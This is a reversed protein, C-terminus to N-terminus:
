ATADVKIEIYDDLNFSYIYTLVDLKPYISDLAKKYAQLQETYRLRLTEEDTADTKYDVIVVRDDFVAYFDIIGQISQGNELYLVPMENEIENAKYLSQTLPHTNYKQLKNTFRPDIGELDDKTYLRHPLNEVTKHLKNGYDVSEIFNKNFDFQPGRIVEKTPEQTEFRLNFSLDEHTKELPEKFKNFTVDELLEVSRKMHKSIVPYFLDTSSKFNYLLYKSMVHEPIGKVVDFILLKNQARTTAVYLLRLYEEVAEQNQKSEALTRHISRRDQNTSGVMDKLTIGFLDDTLVRSSFERTNISGTPWLITLPYQLGKSQHWTMVRVVNEEDNIPVAESSNEDDIKEIFRIFGLLSAHATNQYQIAKEFLLDLNTKAQISLKKHYTENLNFLNTLVSVIDKHKFDTTTSLILDFTDPDVDKLRSFLSADEVKLQAIQDYTYGIFPSSLISVLYNDDYSISFRLWNLVQEIIGYTYFGSRDDIFHPINAEEFARKLYIKPAHTRVLITMEHFDFAQSQKMEIIQNAVVRARYMNVEEANLRREEAITEYSTLHIKVYPNIVTANANGAVVTDNDTYQFNETLSMLKKYLDNNYNVINHSSRYNFGFNIKQTTDDNLYGQMLAPKAGRFQYISQKIDGVRFINDGTSILRIISDQYDNTDQFEDVMVEKYKNQMLKAIYGDQAKLIKLAYKEFDDFDFASVSVKIQDFHNLYRIALDLLEDILPKQAQIIEFMEDMPQYYRIVENIGDTVSKLDDKLDPSKPAARLVLNFNDLLNDYFSIDQAQTKQLLVTLNEQLTQFPAYNALKNGLDYREFAKSMYHDLAGMLITLKLNYMSFFASKIDQPFGNFSTVDYADKINQIACTMDPKSNLFEAITVISQEFPDTYSPNNILAKLLVALKEPKELAYEDLTKRLADQKYLAAQAPDLINDSRAPDIDLIYGYNKIITLCFSHITTIDATEVLSIEKELVTKDESSTNENQYNKNLAELLKIKMDGAAVETFTLACIENVSLGDTLIRKMLRDILTATKGAGASASVIVNRNLASIAAQQDANPKFGSMREGGM